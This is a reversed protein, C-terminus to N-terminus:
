KLLLKLSNFSSFFIISLRTFVYSQIIAVSIELFILIIGLPFILPILIVSGGNILGILLHGAVINAALRVSLTLPRILRSILEIIVVGLILFIELLPPYFGLNDIKLLYHHEGM